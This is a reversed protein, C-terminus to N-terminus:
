SATAEDAWAEVAARFLATFGAAIRVAPGSPGLAASARELAKLAAAGQTAGDRLWATTSADRRAFARLVLNCGVHTTVLGLTSPSWRFEPSPRGLTALDTLPSCQVLARVCDLYEAPDIPLGAAMDVLAASSHALQVRRLRPWMQLRAPAPRGRFSASGTWWSLQVDSRGLELLRGFTAHRAIAQAHDRPPPIAGCLARTARLLTAHRGRTAFSSLEDNTVQLLDNLAAAVSWEAPELDPLGDVPVLARAAQCRAEDIASRLADDAIRQELGVALAAEPGFPRVPRVAGGLVLPGIVQAALEASRESPSVSM